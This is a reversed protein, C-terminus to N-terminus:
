YFISMGIMLPYTELPDGNDFLETLSYRAYVGFNGSGIRGLLNVGIPNTNINKTVKKKDGNTYKVKSVGAFRYELEPGLSIFFGSERRTSSQIEICVPVRLSWYRLYSQSVSNDPGILTMELGGPTPIWDFYSREDIWYRSRTIGFAITLGVNGRSNIGTGRSDLYFGIDKGKGERQPIGATSQFSRYNNLTNMGMYFFPFHERFEHKLPLQEGPEMNEPCNYSVGIFPININGVTNVDNIFKYFWTGSKTNIYSDNTYVNENSASLVAPVAAIVACLIIRSLKMCM